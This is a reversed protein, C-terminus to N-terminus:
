VFNKILPQGIKLLHRLRVSAFNALRWKTDLTFAGNITVSRLRFDSTWCFLESYLRYFSSAHSFRDSNPSIINIMPSKPRTIEIGGFHDLQYCQCLIKTSSAFAAISDSAIRWCSDLECWYRDCGAVENTVVIIIRIVRNNHAWIKIAFYFLSLLISSLRAVQFQTSFAVLFPLFFEVFILKSRNKTTNLILAITYLPQLSKSAQTGVLPAPHSISFYDFIYVTCM